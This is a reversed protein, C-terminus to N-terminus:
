ARRMDGPILLRHCVSALPVIRKTLQLNTKEKVAFKLCEGNFIGECGGYEQIALQAYDVIAQESKWDPKQSERWKAKAAQVAHLLSHGSCAYALRRADIVKHARDSFHEYM